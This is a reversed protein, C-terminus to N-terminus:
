PMSAQEPAKGDIRALATRIANRLPDERRFWSRQPAVEVIPVIVVNGPCRGAFLTLSTWCVTEKTGLMKLLVPIAAKASPGIGALALVTERHISRKDSKLIALLAPVAPAAAPGIKSLTRVIAAQHAPGWRSGATALGPKQLLKLLDPVAAAAESGMEGLAEVAQVGAPAKADSAAACLASILPATPQRLHWLILIAQVRLQPSEDKDDVMHELIPLAGRAEAAFQLLTALAWSRRTGDQKDGLIASLAETGAEPDIRSLTEAALLFKASEKEERVTAELTSRASRAETGMLSLALLAEFRLKDDPDQAIECLVPVAAAGGERLIKGADGPPPERGLFSEHRLARSWYNAPKGAFFAEHRFIGVALYIMSPFLAVTGSAVLLALLAILRRKHM